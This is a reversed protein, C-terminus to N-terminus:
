LTAGGIRDVKTDGCDWHVEQLSPLGACEGGILCAVGIGPYSGCVRLKGLAPLLTTEEELCLAADEPSTLPGISLYRLQELIPLKSSMIGDQFIGTLSLNSANLTLELVSKALGLLGDRTMRGSPSIPTTTIPPGSQAPSGSAIESDSAQHEEEAEHSASPSGEQDDDGRTSAPQAKETSTRLYSESRIGAPNVIVQEYVNRALFRLDPQAFYLPHDFHDSYAGARQWYEEVKEPTVVYTNAKKGKTKASTKEHAGSASKSQEEDRESVFGELVLRPYTVKKAESAAKADDLERMKILYLDLIGQIWLIRKTWEM